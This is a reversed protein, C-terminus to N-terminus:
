AKVNKESKAIVSLIKILYQSEGPGLAYFRRETCKVLRAYDKDNEKKIGCDAKWNLNGENFNFVNNSLDEIKYFEVEFYYQNIPNQEFSEESDFNIKCSELFNEKINANFGEESIINTQIKGDRSICDSIKQSLIEGEIERVDYPSGYFNYVMAFIGGSVLILILFWYMSLVKDGRKNKKFFLVPFKINVRKNM